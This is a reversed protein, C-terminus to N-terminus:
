INENKHIIIKNFGLYDSINIYIFANLKTYYCYYLSMMSNRRSSGKM